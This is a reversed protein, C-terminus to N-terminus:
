GRTRKKRGKYSQRRVPSEGVLYLRSYTDLIKGIQHDAEDHRVPRRMKSLLKCLFSGTLKVVLVGGHKDNLERVWHIEKDEKRLEITEDRTIVFGCKGYDGALYSLMQRYEDGELGKKNKVEFIVQRTGHDDYVRRWVGGEAINTAVIDRRQTAQKNPHLEINALQGAFLIRAARLCWEEFDKAGDTGLPIKGLQSVHSGIQKNRIQPTQSEIRIEYEDHIEEVEIEGLVPRTSGLAMWYCPHVLLRADGDFGMAPSRGDHCFSFTGSTTDRIGVFGVSYLSQLLDLPNDLIVFHQRAASDLQATDVAAAVLSSAVTASSEPDRNSFAATLFPLGPVIGRYEKHLDDLRTRSIEHATSNLDEMVIKERRHSAARNFAQNLLALIDRPRYLTLRLAKRFGERGHLDSGTCHNWIKLNNEVDPAFALRLRDCALEFLLAEDWHLRLIQGEIDRTYDPDVEAIARSVNDRAFLSLRTAPMWDNLEITALVLGDAMANGVDDARYGEDLKDILLVFEMKLEPVIEILAEKIQNVELLRALNGVQEEPVVDNPLVSDLVRKLRASVGNVQTWRQIHSVLRNSVTVKSYRYKRSAASAIEMMLAYRWVIRSAARLLHFHPGFHKLIPRLGFMQDEEPSLEIAHVKSVSDWHKKLAYVLASKGSGRRGVVIPREKAILLTKYDPTKVFARLLMGHDAEARIDGLPSAKM